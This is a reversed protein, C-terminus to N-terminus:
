APGHRPSLPRRGRRASPRPLALGRDPEAVPLRVAEEDPLTVYIVDGNFRNFIFGDGYEWVGGYLFAAGAIGLALLLAAGRTM